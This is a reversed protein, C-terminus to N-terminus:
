RPYLTTVLVHHMNIVHVHSRVMERISLKRKEKVNGGESVDSSGQSGAAPLKSEALPPDPVVRSSASLAEYALQQQMLVEAPTM